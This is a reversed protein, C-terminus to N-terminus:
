NCKLSCIRKHGSLARSSRFMKMCKECRFKGCFRTSKSRRRCGGVYRGSKDGDKGLRNKFKKKMLRMWVYKFMMLLCRAVDEEPSTDSVSSVTNRVAPSSSEGWSPNMFDVQSGDLEEFQKVWDDTFADKTSDDPKSAATVSELGKFLRGLRNELGQVGAPLLPLCTGKEEEKQKRNEEIGDGSRQSAPALNSLRSIMVASDLLQELDDHLDAM